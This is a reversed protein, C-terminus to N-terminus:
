LNNVADKFKNGRDKYNKFMDFSACAPSFLVVGGSETVEKAKKVVLSIDQDGDILQAATGVEEVSKKIRPGEVGIFIINKVSSKKIEGAMSSFNAGKESGGVILTVPTIFSKIAAITPVPNTSFSDNFYKVGNIERVFETRHELGKFSKIAESIISTDISLIKGVISSAAINELNHRGILQVESESCVKEHGSIALIVDGEPNVYAGNQVKEKSSFLYKKAQGIDEMRKSDPYDNNLVAFDEATQNKFIAAKTEQYEELSKHYDLHDVDLNVLVSIHPSKDLDQIQFSSLEFVILDEAKISEIVNFSPTGINGVLYVKKGSKKIIEYILSTTTGKGKTGTVGIIDAPCFDFFLKTSSTVTVGNLKAAQIEESLYPIGPSRVIIDFDGLGSLYDDGSILDLNKEKILSQGEEIIKELPAKDLVSFDIDNKLLFKAVSINEIGFGLLAVKKGRFIDINM